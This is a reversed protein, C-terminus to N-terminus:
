AEEPPHIRIADARAAALLAGPDIVTALDSTRGLFWPGVPGHDQHLSFPDMSVLGELRDVWIGAPSDSADVIIVHTARGPRPGRVTLAVRLDFVPVVAGRVNTLGAYVAPLGPIPIISQVPAVERVSRLGTLFREEGLCFCLMTEGLQRSGSDTRALRRARDALVESATRKM